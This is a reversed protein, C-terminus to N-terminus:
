LKFTEFIQRESNVKILVKKRGKELVQKLFSFLSICFYKEILLM